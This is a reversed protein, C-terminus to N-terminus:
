FYIRQYMNDNKEIDVVFHQIVNVCLTNVKKRLDNLSFRMGSKPIRVVIEDADFSHINEALEPFCSTINEKISATNTGDCIFISILQEGNDKKNFIIMIHEKGGTKGIAWGNM